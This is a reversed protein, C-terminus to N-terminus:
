LPLALKLSRGSPVVRYHNRRRRIGAQQRRQYVRRIDAYRCRDIHRYGVRYSVFGRDDATVYQLRISASVYTIDTRTNSHGADNCGRNRPM